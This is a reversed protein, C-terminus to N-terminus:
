ITNLRVSHELITETRKYVVDRLSPMRVEGRCKRLISFCNEIRSTSEGHQDRIHIGAVSGKHEDIRQHLHRCTYGFM